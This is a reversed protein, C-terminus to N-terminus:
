ACTPHYCTFPYLFTLQRLSNTYGFAPTLPVQMNIPYISHFKIIETQPILTKTTSKLQM